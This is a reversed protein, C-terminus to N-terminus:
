RRLEIRHDAAARALESRSRLGLKAYIRTLHAEVTRVTLFLQAAVEKNTRGEAVLAAVRREADTLSDRYGRRPSVRRLEEDARSAAPAAGLRAFVGIASALTDAAQRRRGARRLARGEAHLAQGLEWPADVREFVERAEGLSALASDIEADAMALQGSCLALAASAWPDLQPVWRELQGTLQEADERRDAELLTTVVEPITAAFEPARAGAGDSVAPLLRMREGAEATRGEALDLLGLAYEATAAFVEDRSGLPSAAVAEADARAESMGRRARLIARRSLLLDYWYDRAQALLRDLREAAADWCGRRLDVETSLVDIRMLLGDDGRREAEAREVELLAKTEAWDTSWWRWHALALRPTHDGAATPNRDAIEIARRFSADGRPDGALSLVVGATTLATVLSPEDGMRDALEVARLAEAAAPEVDGLWAGRQWALQSLARLALRTDDSRVTVAEDLRAVAIGPDVEHLARQMLARIRIEGGVGSGLVEDVLARAGPEDAALYLYDAEDMTRRAFALDHMPTLRRAHAALEAAAEPAGRESAATAADDLLQAVSEDQGLTALALHRARAELGQEVEAAARHLERRRSHPLREYAGTALLPHAFRVVGEDEVLIGATVADDLAAADSFAAVPAPAVVAALEIAQRARTSAGVLRSDVLELLSAPAAGSARATRALELSFFPNGGSRQHIRTVALRSLDPDIRSRVLTATADLDLGGLVLEDRALESGAIALPDDHGDRISIAFSMPSSDPRRAVFALARASAPDLWQADDVAIVVPLRAALTRFALLAGRSVAHADIPDTGDELMLARALAHALPDPLEELVPGVTDALLDALAAHGLPLEPEVPRAVLVLAGQERAHTVAARWVSSKGIGAEGRVLLVAPGRAAASAWRRVRDLEIERGVLDTPVETVCCRYPRM